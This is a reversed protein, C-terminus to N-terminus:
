TDETINYVCVGPMTERLSSSGIGEGDKLVQTNCGKERARSRQTKNSCKSCSGHCVHDLVANLGKKVVTGTFIM